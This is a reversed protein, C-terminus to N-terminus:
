DLVKKVILVGAVLLLWWAWDPLFDWDILGYPNFGTSRPENGTAGPKSGGGGAGSVTGFSMVFFSYMASSCDYLDFTITKKLDPFETNRYYSNLFERTLPYPARLLNPNLQKARNREQISNYVPLTLNWDCELVPNKLTTM